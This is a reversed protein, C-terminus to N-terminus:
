HHFLVLEKEKLLLNKKSNLQKYFYQMMPKFILGTSLITISISTFVGKAIFLKNDVIVKKTSM